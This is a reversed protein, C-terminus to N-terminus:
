PKASKAKLKESKGIRQVSGAAGRRQRASGRAEFRKRDVIDVTECRANQGDALWSESDV